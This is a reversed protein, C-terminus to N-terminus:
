HEDFNDNQCSKSVPNTLLSVFIPDLPDGAFGVWQLRRVFSWYGREWTHVLPESYGDVNLMDESYTLSIEDVRGRASSDAVSVDEFLIVLENERGDSLSHGSRNPFPRSEFADVHGPTWSLLGTLGTTTVLWRGILRGNLFVTAKSSRGELALVIPAHFSDNGPLDETAFTTEYRMSEGARFEYPFAIDNEVFEENLM